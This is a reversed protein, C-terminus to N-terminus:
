LPSIGFALPMLSTDLRLQRQFQKALRVSPPLETAQASRVGASSLVHFRM